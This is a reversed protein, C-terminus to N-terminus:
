QNNKTYNEIMATCIEEGFEAIKQDFFKKDFKDNIQSPDYKDKEDPDINLLVDARTKDKSQRGTIDITAYTLEEKTEKLYLKFYFDIKHVVDLHTGGVATFFKLIYKDNFREQIYNYLAKSFFHSPNEPNGVQCKEVLAMSNKFNIYNDKNALALTNEFEKQALEKMKIMNEFRVEPSATEPVADKHISAYALEKYQSSKITGLFEQELSSGTNEYGKRSNEIRNMM